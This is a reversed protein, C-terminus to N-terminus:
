LADRNQSQRRQDGQLRLSGLVVTADCKPTEVEDSGYDLRYSQNKAALFIAQYQNGRSKVGTIQLPPNHENRIM